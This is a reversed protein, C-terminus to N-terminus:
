EQLKRYTRDYYVLPLSQQSSQVALVEGIFLTHTGAEYAAAVKCDFAALGGHILDTASVLHFTELDDFRDEDESRGAFRDSLAQQLETLITVGFYGSNRTLDHTRTGKQLSVLVTAPELSVSTFSSVTMGHRIGAYRATVITVGTTWNRMAARLSEADVSM